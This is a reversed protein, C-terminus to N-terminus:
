KVLVGVINVIPLAFRYDNTMFDNSIWRSQFANDTEIEVSEFNIKKIVLQPKYSDERQKKNQKLVFFSSIATLCAGISALLTITQNIDM